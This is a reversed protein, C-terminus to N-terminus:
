SELAWEGIGLQKTSLGCIGCVPKGDSDVSAPHILSNFHGALDAREYEHIEAITEWMDFTWGGTEIVFLGRGEGYNGDPSFYHMQDKNM